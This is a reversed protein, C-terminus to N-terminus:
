ESSSVRVEQYMLVDYEKRMLKANKNERRLRFLRKVFNIM